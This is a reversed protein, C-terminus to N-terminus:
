QLDDWRATAPEALAWHWQESGKCITAVFFRDEEDSDTFVIERCRFSDGFERVAMVEGEASVWPLHTDAEWAVTQELPAEGAAAAIADQVVDAEERHYYRVGEDVGARAALGVGIGLVPNGTAVGVASGVGFGAVDAAGDGLSM